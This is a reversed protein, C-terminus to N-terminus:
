PPDSGLSQDGLTSPPVSLEGQRLRQIGPTAPQPLASAIRGVVGFADSPDAYEIKETVFSGDPKQITRTESKRGRTALLNMGYIAAVAIIGIDVVPLKVKADAIARRVLERTDSEQWLGDLVALDLEALMPGSRRVDAVIDDVAERSEANARLTELMEELSLDDSLEAVLNRVAHQILAADAGQTNLFDALTGNIAVSYHTIGCVM